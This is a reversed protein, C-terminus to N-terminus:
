QVSAAPLASAAVTTTSAALQAQSEAAIRERKEEALRDQFVVVFWLVSSPLRCNLLQVL